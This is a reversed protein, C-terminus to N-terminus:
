DLGLPGPYKRRYETEAQMVKAVYARTQPFPIDGLGFRHGAAHAQAIWRGVNTEGGNYAALAATEDGGFTKLLQALYYSGYAINVAPTGLDSVHFTTAGSQRALAEATAPEIQMLGVAGASSTRADFGTEAYIVAAVLAPDLQKASAQQEIISSYRLPLGLDRIARQFLPSAARIGFCVIVAVFVTIGALRIRRNRRRQRRAQLARAQAARSPVATPSAGPRKRAGSSAGAVQRRPVVATRSGSSM